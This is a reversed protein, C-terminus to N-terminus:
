VRRKKELDIERPVNYGKGKFVQLAFDSIDKQREEDFDLTRFHGSKDRMHLVEKGKINVEGAWACPNGRAVISHQSIAGDQFYMPLVWITKDPTIVASLTSDEGKERRLNLEGMLTDFKPTGLKIPEEARFTKLPNKHGITREKIIFEEFYAGPQMSPFIVPVGEGPKISDFLKRTAYENGIKIM